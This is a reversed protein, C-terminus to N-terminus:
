PLRQKKRTSACHMAARDAFEWQLCTMAVGRQCLSCAVLREAAHVEKDRAADAEVQLQRHHAKLAEIDAAFASQARVLEEKAAAVKRQAKRKVTECLEAAEARALDAAESMAARHKRDLEDTVRSREHEIAKANAHKLHEMQKRYNAHLSMSETNHEKEADALNKDMAASLKAQQDSAKAQVAKVTSAWKNRAKEIAKAVDDDAKRKMDSLQAKLENEMAKSQTKLSMIEADKAAEMRRFANAANNSAETMARGHEAKLQELESELRHINRRHEGEAADKQNKMAAAATAKAARVDDVAKKTLQEKQAQLRAKLSAIKSELQGRVDSLKANAESRLRKELTNMAEQARAADLGNKAHLQAAHDSAERREHAMKQEYDERTRQLEQEVDKRRQVAEKVEAAARSKIEIMNQNNTEQVRAMDQRQKTRMEDLALSNERQMQNIARQKEMDSQAAKQRMQNDMDALQREHAERARQIQRGLTQKLTQLNREYETVVINHKLEAKTMAKTHRNDLEKELQAMQKVKERELRRKNVEMEKKFHEEREAVAKKHAEKLEAYKRKRHAMARRHRQESEEQRDAFEQRDRARAAEVDKVQQAMHDMEAKFEAKAESLEKYAKEQARGILGDKERQLEEIRERQAAHAKHLDTKHQAMLLAVHDEHTHTMGQELKHKADNLAKREERMLKKLEHAQVPHWLTVEQLKCAWCLM